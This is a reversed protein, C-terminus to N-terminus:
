MGGGFDVKSCGLVKKLGREATSRRIDVVDKWKGSFAAFNAALVYNADLDPEEKILSEMLEGKIDCFEGIKRCCGLLSRLIVANPKVPMEKIFKYAEEILGARGLLDVLCGYHEMTPRIKYVSVMRKFLNLGQEVLGSHSCASIVTSFLVSDPKLGREELEHFLGIAEKGCGNDAFGSIMVTWSQLNKEEMSTFIQLAEELHGCKTYMGILATGLPVDLKMSGLLIYAHISQGIKLSNLKSSASLLSILTVSNPQVNNLRMQRFMMLADLPHDCSVYGDIMSSWSVVNRGGMEDFVKRACGIVRCSGYVHLLTNGVYSDSVFGSKLVLGHVTRGEGLMSSSACAKLVFPYTFNDPRLGAHRLDSLLDFAQPSNQTETYVRVLSNYFFVSPSTKLLLAHLQLFHSLGTSRQFLSPLHRSLFPPLEM